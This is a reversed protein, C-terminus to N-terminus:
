WEIHVNTLRVNIAHMILLKDTNDLCCARVSVIWSDLTDSGSDPTEKLSQASSM